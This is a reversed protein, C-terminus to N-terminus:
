RCLFWYFAIAITIIIALSALCIIARSLSNQKGLWSSLHSRMFFWFSVLVSLGVGFFTLITGLLTFTHHMTNPDIYGLLPLVLYQWVNLCPYM